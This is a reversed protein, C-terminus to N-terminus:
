QNLFRSPVFLGGYSLARAYLRGDSGIYTQRQELNAYASAGHHPLAAGYGTASPPLPFNNRGLQPLSSPYGSNGHGNKSNGGSSIIHAGAIGPIGRAGTEGPAGQVQYYTQSQGYGGAGADYYPQGSQADAGRMGPEGQLGPQGVIQTVVTHERAANPATM